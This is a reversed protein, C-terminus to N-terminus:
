EDRSLFIPPSPKPRAVVRRRRSDTGVAPSRGREGESKGESMSDTLDTSDYNASVFERQGGRECRARVLSARSAAFLSRPLDSLIKLPRASDRSAGCGSGWATGHVYV